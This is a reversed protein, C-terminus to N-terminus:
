FITDVRHMAIHRAEISRLSIPMHTDTGESRLFTYTTTPSTHCSLVNVALKNEWKEGGNESAM